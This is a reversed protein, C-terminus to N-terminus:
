DVSVGICAVDSKLSKSLRVLGPFEKICPECATSWLDVVTIKGTSKAHTEIASWSAMQVKGPSATAGSASDQQPMEIGGGGPKTPGGSKPPGTGSGDAGTAPLDGAPLQIGADTAPGSASQLTEDASLNTTSESGIALSGSDELLSSEEVSSLQSDSSEADNPKNGGCGVWVVCCLCALL